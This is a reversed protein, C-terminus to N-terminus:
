EFKDRLFFVGLLSTFIILIAQGYSNLSELTISSKIPFDGHISKSHNNDQKINIKKQNYIDSFLNTQVILIFISYYFIKKFFFVLNM